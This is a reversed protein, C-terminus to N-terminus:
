ESGIKELEGLKKWNEWIKRIGTYKNVIEVYKNM